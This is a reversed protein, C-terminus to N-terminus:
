QKEMVVEGREQCAASSLQMALPPWRSVSLEDVNYVFRLVFRNPAALYPNM